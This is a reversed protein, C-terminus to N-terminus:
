ANRKGWHQKCYARGTRRMSVFENSTLRRLKREAWAAPRACEEGTRSNKWCCGYGDLVGIM